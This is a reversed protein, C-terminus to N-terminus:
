VSRVAMVSSVKVAGGCSFVNVESDDSSLQSAGNGPFVETSVTSMKFSITLLALGVEGMRSCM